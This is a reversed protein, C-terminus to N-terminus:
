DCTDKCLWYLNELKDLLESLRPCSKLPNGTIFWACLFCNIVYQAPHPRPPDQNSDQDSRRVRTTVGILYKLVSFSGLIQLQLSLVFYSKSYQIFLVSILWFINSQCYKGGVILFIPICPEAPCDYLYVSGIVIMCVPIVITISCAKFCMFVHTRNFVIM